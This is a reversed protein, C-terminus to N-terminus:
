NAAARLKESSRFAPPVRLDGVGGREPRFPLARSLDIGARTMLLTAESLSRVALKAMVRARHMEVTRVSIGLQHAAAKNAKGSVLALLVDLERATLRGVRERAFRREQFADAGRHLKAWAPTLAAALQLAGLPKCLFDAAGRKMAEVALALDGARGLGIVPWGPARREIEEITQIAAMGNSCDLLICGPALRDIVALLEDGSELPWAEGGIMSIHAAIAKRDDSDRDVLYVRRQHSM